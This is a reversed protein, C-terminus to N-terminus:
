VLDDLRGSCVCRRTAVCYKYLDTRERLYFWWCSGPTNNMTKVGSGDHM